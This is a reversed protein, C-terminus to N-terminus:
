VKQMEKQKSKEEVIMWVEVELCIRHLQDLGRGWFYVVSEAWHKSMDVAARLSALAVQPPHFMTSGESTHKIARGLRSKFLNRHATGYKTQWLRERTTPKRINM